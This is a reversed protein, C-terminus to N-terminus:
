LDRMIEQRYKIADVDKLSTYFFPKLDYEEKGTTIADIIQDLNLDAFFVPAEPTEKKIDGKAKEFLISYFVM